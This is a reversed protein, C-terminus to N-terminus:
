KQMLVKSEHSLLYLLSSIVSELLNFKINGLLAALGELKNLVSFFCDIISKYKAFLFIEFFKLAMNRIICM